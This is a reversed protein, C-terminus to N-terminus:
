CLCEIGTAFVELSLLRSCEVQGRCWQAQLGRPESSAHRQHQEISAAAIGHKQQVNLAKWSAIVAITDAKAYTGVLAIGSRGVATGKPSRTRRTSTRPTRRPTSRWSHAHQVQLNGFSMTQYIQQLLAQPDCQVKWWKRVVAFAVGGTKQRCPAIM